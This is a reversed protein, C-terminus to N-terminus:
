GNILGENPIPGMPPGQPGMPPGQPGMPPGQPGEPGMPPGQPPMGPPGMGPPGQMGPPGEPPMSPGMSQGDQPVMRSLDEPSVGETGEGQPDIYDDYHGDLVTEIFQSVRDQPLKGENSFSKGLEGAVMTLTINQNRDLEEESSPMYIGTQVVMDYAESVVEASADMIHDFPIQGGSSTTANLGPIILDLSIMALDEVINDSGQLVEMYDEFRPGYMAKKAKAVITVATENSTVEDMRLADSEMNILGDPPAGGGMPMGGESPMGPPGEPSGMPPMGPPGMPPGQPPMGPPGMPGGQPPVEPPLEPGQGGVLMEPPLQDPSM